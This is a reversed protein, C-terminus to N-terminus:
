THTHCYQEFAELCLYQVPGCASHAACSVWACTHACTHSNTQKCAAYVCRGHVAARRIRTHEHTQTCTHMVISKQVCMPRTGSSMTLGLAATSAYGCPTLILGSFRLTLIHTQQSVCVCVCVCTACIHACVHARACVCVCVHFPVCTHVHNRLPGACALLCVCPLM